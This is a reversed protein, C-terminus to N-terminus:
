MVDVHRLRHQAGRRKETPLGKRSECAVVCADNRQRSGDGLWRSKQHTVEGCWGHFDYPSLLSVVFLSEVVGM